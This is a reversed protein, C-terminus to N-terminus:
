AAETKFKVLLNRSERSEFYGKTGESGAWFKAEVYLIRRVTSWEMKRDEMEGDRCRGMNLEINAEFVLKIGMIWGVFWM